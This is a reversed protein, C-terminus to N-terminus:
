FETSFEEYSDAAESKQTDTKPGQDDGVNKKGKKPKKKKMGEAQQVARNVAQSDYSGSVNIRSDDDVICDTRM